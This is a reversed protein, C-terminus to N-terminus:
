PWAPGSLQNSPIAVTPNWTFTANGWYWSFFLSEDMSLLCCLVGYELWAITLDWESISVWQPFRGHTNMRHLMWLDTQNCSTMFALSQRFEGVIVRHLPMSTAKLKEQNRLHCTKRIYLKEDFVQVLSNSYREWSKKDLVIMKSIHIGHVLSRSILWRNPLKALCAIFPRVRRWKPM